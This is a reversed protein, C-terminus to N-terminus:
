EFVYWTYENAPIRVELTVCWDRDLTYKKARGEQERVSATKELGSYYLPVKITRIMESDTPNYFMAFAKEKLEPNVHMIGDWDRADPQRLHIIDSNLIDRYKKYWGIVDKVVQRTEESDYLRPGRYCAQIGAGYNQFMLARYEALHDKLPELTAAEGGGFYEVLPVFSWLSSPIREWTCRYNLQRTHILQRERPLSWNVERYGIAVKTSGNLIYYDPVNIYIGEACMWNYLEAIKDFQKWQSDKLGKHHTHSTSACVDGSYSGDHEFCTMGTREIFTRVKHFYEYGWDSCLCPSSGFTMGGRKGTEPNIIDVEDSIWRSALLSYCGMEIGKSNAYDVLEKFRAINSESIDEADLDSGFSLIVMEYGCDVCQDVARRVVEPDTSTLHMFIPNESSWPAITRQLRRKFLGTRERDYSDMPMEYVKFSAYPKERTIEVDPGMDVSADLICPTTLRYSTQSTYEKDAVWHAVHNTERETFGPGAHFDSEVHINPRLFEDPHEEEVPSEPEAFSLYELKFSDLNVPSDGYNFVEMHKRIVPIHDYIDYHLKVKMDKVQGTGRLTFVLSKGTPLETNLAWRRRGWKLTQISDSIEFDEVIFSRSKPTMNDLWEYRLYGREPQGDLGGLHWRVGNVTVEGETSAARLMNESTMHNILDITALNPTIRFIRSVLGNSLIVSKGDKGAWVGAKYPKDDILWDGECEAMGTYDAVPLKKLRDSIRAWDSESIGEAEEITDTSLNIARHVDYAIEVESWVAFDGHYGDGANDVILELTNVGSIDLHVPYLKEGATMVKSFLEKGDGAIRFTVSGREANGAADAVGAFFRGSDTDHYFIRTGDTQTMSTINGSSYDIGTEGVGIKGTFEDCLGKANIRIVNHPFVGVADTCKEGGVVAEEGTVLRGTMLTGYTQSANSLDLESLKQQASSIFCFLLTTLVTLISSRIM